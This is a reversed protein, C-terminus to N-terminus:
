RLLLPIPIEDSGGEDFDGHYETILNKINSVEEKIERVDNPVNSMDIVFRGAGIICASSVITLVGILTGNIVKSKNEKWYNKLM